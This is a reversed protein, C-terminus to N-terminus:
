KNRDEQKTEEMSYVSSSQSITNILEFNQSGTIIFKGNKKSSDVDVQIYSILDPVRQAEDIIAGDPFQNLFGKPDRSAFNRDEISELNTYKMDPFLMKRFTTKGSQRPGTITVVPYQKSYQLIKPAVDRDIM